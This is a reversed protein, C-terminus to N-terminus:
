RAAADQHTRAPEDQDAANQGTANTRTEATNVAAARRAKWRRILRRTPYWVFGAVVFFLAGILAALSGIASLGAGPGVYAMADPIM